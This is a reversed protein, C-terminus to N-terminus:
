CSCTCLWFYIRSSRPLYFTRILQSIPTIFQDLVGFTKHIRFFPLRAKALHLYTPHIKAGQFSCTTHTHHHSSPPSFWYVETTWSSAANWRLNQLHQCRWPCTATSRASPRAPRSTPARSWCGRSAPRQARTPWSAPPPRSAAHIRFQSCPARDAMKRVPVHVPIHGTMDRDIQYSTRRTDVYESFTWTWPRAMPCPQNVRSVLLLQSASEITRRPTALDHVTESYINIRPHELKQTDKAHQIVKRAVTEERWAWVPKGCPVTWLM